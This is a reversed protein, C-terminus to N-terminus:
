FHSGRGGRKLGPASVDNFTPSRISLCVMCEHLPIPWPYLVDEHLGCLLINKIDPETVELCLVSNIPLFVFGITECDPWGVKNGKAQVLSAHNFIRSRVLILPQPIFYPSQAYWRLHSVEKPLSAWVDKWSSSINHFLSERNIRATCDTTLCFFWNTM